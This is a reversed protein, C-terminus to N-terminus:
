LALTSNVRDREPSTLRGLCRNCVQRGSERGGNIGQWHNTPGKLVAKDEAQNRKCWPTRAAAPLGDASLRAEWGEPTVIHVHASPHLPAVWSIGDLRDPPRLGSSASADRAAARLLPSPTRPLPPQQPTRPAPAAAAAAAPPLQPTRPVAAAAVAGSPPQQPTRPAPAVATAM